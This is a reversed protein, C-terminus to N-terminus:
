LCSSTGLSVKAQGLLQSKLSLSGQIHSIHSALGPPMPLFSVIQTLPLFALVPARVFLSSCCASTPHPQRMACRDMVAVKMPQSHSALPVCSPHGSGGQRHTFAPPSLPGGSTSIVNGCPFCCEEVVGVMCCLALVQQPDSGLPRTRLGDVDEGTTVLLSSLM